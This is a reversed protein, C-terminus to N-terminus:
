YIVRGEHGHKIRMEAEHRVWPWWTYELHGSTMKWIRRGHELGIVDCWTVQWTVEKDHAEEDDKLIFYPFFFFFFFILFIFYFLIFNNINLADWLLLYGHFTRWWLEYLKSNQSNRVLTTRLNFYHWFLTSNWPYYQHNTLEQLRKAFFNQSKACDNIPHTTWKLVFRNHGTLM